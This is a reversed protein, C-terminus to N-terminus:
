ASSPGFLLVSPDVLKAGLLRGAASARADAAEFPGSLFPLCVLAPWALLGAPQSLGSAILPYLQTITSLHGFAIGLNGSPSNDLRLFVTDLLFGYTHFHSM